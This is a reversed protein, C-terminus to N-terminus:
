ATHNTHLTFRWNEWEIQMCKLKTEVFPVPNVILLGLTMPTILNACLNIMACIFMEMLMFKVARDCFVLESIEVSRRPANMAIKCTMATCIFSHKKSREGFCISQIVTELETCFNDGFESLSLKEIYYDEHKNGDNEIWKDHFFSGWDIYGTPVGAKKETM